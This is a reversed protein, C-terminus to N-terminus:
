KRGYDMLNRNERISLKGFFGYYRNKQPMMYNRQDMLNEWEDITQPMMNVNKAQRCYWHWDAEAKALRSESGLRGQEYDIERLKYKIYKEVATVNEVTDPIMPFGDCDLKQKLYAIAVQGEKFSFRIIDEVLTYEDRCTKYLEEYGEEKAVVTDFFIHNALRVPTFHNWNPQNNGVVNYEGLVDFYPRYYALEYDHIPTGNSDLAVPIDAPNSTTTDTIVDAPTLGSGAWKNNRATQLIVHM